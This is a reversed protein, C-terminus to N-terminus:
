SSFINSLSKLESQSNVATKKFVNKLRSRVTSIRCNAEYSHEQLSRGLYIAEVLRVEAPTLSFYNKFEAAMFTCAFGQYDLLVLLAPSTAEKSDDQLLSHSEIRLPHKTREDKVFLVDSCGSELTNNLSSRLAADKTPDDLRLSNEIILCSSGNAFLKKGPRTIDWISLSQDLIIAVRSQRELIMMLRTAVNLAEM